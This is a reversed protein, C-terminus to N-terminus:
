NSIPAGSNIPSKNLFRGMAMLLIQRGPVEVYKYILSGLLIPLAILTIFIAANGIINNTDLSGLGSTVNQILRHVLYISYSWLGLRVFMPRSLWLRQSVERCNALLCIASSLALAAHYESASIYGCCITVIFGVISLSNLMMPSISNLLYSHEAYIKYTCIGLTFEGLVQIIHPNVIPFEQQYTLLTLLIAIVPLLWKGKRMRNIVVAILPFVFYAVFECSVSWAPGDLSPAPILEQLAFVNLFFSQYTLNHGTEHHFRHGTLDAYLYLSSACVTALLYVPYLRAIRKSLFNAINRLSMQWEGLYNHAILFGSLVFFLDVGVYASELLPDLLTGHPLGFQEYLYSSFHGVLVWCAAIARLGTLAPIPKAM